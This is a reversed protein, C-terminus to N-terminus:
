GDRRLISAQAESLVQRFGQLAPAILLVGPEHIQEDPRPIRSRHSQIPPHPVHGIGVEGM